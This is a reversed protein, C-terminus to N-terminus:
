DTPRPPPEPEPGGLLLGLPPRFHVGSRCRDYVRQGLWSGDLYKKCEEHSKGDINAGAWRNMEDWWSRPLAPPEPMPPEPEPFFSLLRAESVLLYAFLEPSDKELRRAQAVLVRPDFARGDLNTKQNDPIKTM